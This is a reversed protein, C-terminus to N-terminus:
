SPQQTDRTPTTRWSDDVSSASCGPRSLAELGLAQAETGFNIMNATFIGLTTALQFMMNLAGRLHAPAMESLYLPVAKLSCSLRILKVQTFSFMLLINRFSKWRMRNLAFLDRM